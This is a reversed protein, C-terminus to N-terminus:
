KGYAEILYADHKRSVDHRASRFKGVIELARKHREEMGATPSASIIGDVARRIVEAVSVGQAHAIKKIAGAQKENLQIQTRVM